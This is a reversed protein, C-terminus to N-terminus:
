TGVALGQTKVKLSFPPNSLIMAISTELHIFCIRWQTLIPPPPAYDIFHLAFKPIVESTLEIWVCFICVVTLNYGPGDCNVCGYFILMELFHIPRSGRRGWIQWQQGVKWLLCQTIKVESNWTMNSTTVLPRRTWNLSSQTTKWLNPLLTAISLM